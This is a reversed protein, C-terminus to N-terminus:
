TDIWPWSIWCYYGDAEYGRGGQSNVDFCKWPKGNNKCIGGNWEDNESKWAMRCLALLMALAVLVCLLDSM